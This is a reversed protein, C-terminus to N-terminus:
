HSQDMPMFRFARAPLTIKGLAVAAHQRWSFAFAELVSTCARAHREEGGGLKQSLTGTLLGHFCLKTSAKPSKYTCPQKLFTLWLWTRPVHQKFSYFCFELPFKPTCIFYSCHPFSHPLMRSSPSRCTPKSFLHTDLISSASVGSSPGAHLMPWPPHLRFSFSLIQHLLSSLVM